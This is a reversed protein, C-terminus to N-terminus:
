LSLGLERGRIRFSGRKTLQASVEQGVKVGVKGSVPVMALNRSGYTMVAYEGSHLKVRGRYVGNLSKVGEISQYSRGFKAELKGVAAALEKKQLAPRSAPPIHLRGDVERAYGGAKLYAARKELAAEVERWGSLDDIKGQSRMLLTEDLDTWAEAGVQKNLPMESVFKVDAVGYSRLKDNIEETIAEGREVLDPPVKFEVENIRQVVGDKEFTELRLLHRDVYTQRDEEPIFSMSEEVHEYHKYLNYVGDNEAVLAAINHDAKGTSAQAVGVKIIAGKRIEDYNRNGGINIYHPRDLRDKVIVYYRDKLEDVPGKDMVIGAIEQGESKRLDVYIMRASESGIRGYMQKIVDKRRALEFLTTKFDEKVEFVGIEREIVLGMSRLYSLRGRILSEEFLGKGIRNGLRVDVIRKKRGALAEIKYDLSTVREARVEGKQAERVESLSREGIYLTAVEQARERMGHSIYDSAINLEKGARDRGRIVVHAHPNDTNFHNVAMWELRAGLDEEVKEMVDRVYSRMDDIESANEPSIIVRFHKSDNQASQVFEASNVGDSGASYFDPKEGDLGAGDRSLYYTHSRLTKANAARGVHRVYHAKVIVRQSYGKNYNFVNGRKFGQKQTTTRKGSKDRLQSGRNLKKHLSRTAAGMVVNRDRGARLIPKFIEDEERWIQRFKAGSQIM